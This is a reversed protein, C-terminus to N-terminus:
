IGDSDDFKNFYETLVSPVQRDQSKLHSIAKKLIPTADTMNLKVGLCAIASVTDSLIRGNHEPNERLLRNLYKTLGQYSEPTDIRELFGVASLPDFTHTELQDKEWGVASNLFGLFFPVLPEFRRTTLIEGAGYRLARDCKEDSFVQLLAENSLRKIREPYNRREWDDHYIISELASVVYQQELIGQQDQLSKLQKLGEQSEEKLIGVQSVAEKFRGLNNEVADAILQNTRFKVWSWVGIGVVSLFALIIIGWDRLWRSNSDRLEWKYTDVGANILKTNANALKEQLEMKEVNEVTQLQKELHSVRQKLAQIEQAAHKSSQYQQAPIPPPIVGFLAGLLLCVIFQKM